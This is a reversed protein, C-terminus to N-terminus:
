RRPLDPCGECESGPAAQGLFLRYIHHWVAAPDRRAAALEREQDAPGPPGLRAQQMVSAPFTLLLIRLEDRGRRALGCPGTRGGAECLYPLRGSARRGKRGSPMFLFAARESLENLRM